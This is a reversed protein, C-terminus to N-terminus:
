ASKAPKGHWRLRHLCVWMQSGLCPHLYRCHRVRGNSPLSGSYPVEDRLLESLLGHIRNLACPRLQADRANVACAESVAYGSVFAAKHGTADLAKASLADHVGPVMLAGNQEILKHITTQRSAGNASCTVPRLVATRRTSQKQTSTCPGVHPHNGSLIM